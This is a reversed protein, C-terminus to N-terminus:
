SERARPWRAAAILGSAFAIAHAIDSPPSAAVLPKLLLYGLCAPVLWRRARVLGAFAGLCGFAGASAGVDRLGAFAPDPDLLAASLAQAAVSGLSGLVDTAAYVLAAYLSGARWELAGVSWTLLLAIRLWQYFSDVLFTSIVLTEFRGERLSTWGLGWRERYREGIEPDFLGLSLAVALLSVELILTFPVRGLFRATRPSRGALDSAPM